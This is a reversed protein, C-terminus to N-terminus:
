QMSVYLLLIYHIRTAFSLPVEGLQIWILLLHHDRGSVNSLVRRSLQKFRRNPTIIPSPTTSFVLTEQWVCKVLLRKHQTSFWPWTEDMPQFTMSILVCYFSVTLHFVHGCFIEYEQKEQQCTLMTIPISTNLLSTDLSPIRSLFNFCRAPYSLVDKNTGGSKKKVEQLCIVTSQNKNHSHLHLGTKRWNSFSAYLPWFEGPLLHPKMRRQCFWDLIVVPSAPQKQPHPHPNFDPYHSNDTMSKDKTDWLCILSGCVPNVRLHALHPTTDVVAKDAVVALLAIYTHTLAVSDIPRRQLSGRCTWRELTACHKEAYVTTWNCVLM